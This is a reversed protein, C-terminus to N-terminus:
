AGRGVKSVSFVAGQPDALVTTKGVSTDFPSIKVEGGLEAAKDAAADIDEIWFDVSWHASVDEPSQDGSIPVMVGVVERSVPQTPEGGVYGPLRWLTIEGEGMDFTDTEWGFVAGYFAKAGEPDPTNLQSMSWAGPENVLQAGRHEGPQWVGFVAGAPDAVVAMRAADLCNFPEIVVNGGADTVKAVTDDASEAWIYTEWAPVSPAGGRESGVAAVDRGRRMCVFYKSPSEPPMLNTAEWGFLKTYFRVAKVPDPHITAVWCPVGPEYGDRESMEEGGEWWSKRALRALGHM